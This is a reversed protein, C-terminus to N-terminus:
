YEVLAAALKRIFLMDGRSEGVPTLYWKDIILFPISLDCVQIHHKAVTNDDGFEHTVDIQLSRVYIRALPVLASKVVEIKVDSDKTDAVAARLRAFFKPIPALTHVNVDIDSGVVWMNYTSSGFVVLEGRGQDLERQFEARCLAEFWAFGARREAEVKDSPLQRSDKMLSELSLCLKGRGDIDNEEREDQEGGETERGGERRLKKRSDGASSSSSVDRGRKGERRECGGESVREDDSSGYADLLEM